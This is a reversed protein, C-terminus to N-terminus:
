KINGNDYQVLNHPAEVQYWATQKAQGFDLEVKWVAFSGAPVQVTEKGPVRVTTPIKAANQGNVVTTKGEYGDAFPLSRLSMLLHDNDLANAPVDTAAAKNEGNVTAKIDIKGGEYTTSLTVDQGQAKISKEEGLPKLTQGDLRVKASQELTPFKDAMAIVWAEGEKAFEYAATGVKSGSKDLWDYALSDGDSWPVGGLALDPTSTGAAQGCGDLPLALALLVVFLIGPKM